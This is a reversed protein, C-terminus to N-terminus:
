SDKHTLLWLRISPNDDTSKNFEGVWWGAWLFQSRAECLVFFFRIVGSSLWGTGLCSFWLFDCAKTAVGNSGHWPVWTKRQEQRTHTHTHTHWVKMNEQFPKERKDEQPQLFFFFAAGEIESPCLTWFRQPWDKRSMIPKSCCFFFRDQHGHAILGLGM